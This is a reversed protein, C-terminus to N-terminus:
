HDQRNSKRTVYHARRRSKPDPKLAVMVDKITEDALNSVHEIEALMEKESRGAIRSVFTTPMERSLRFRRMAIYEVSEAELKSRTYAQSDM